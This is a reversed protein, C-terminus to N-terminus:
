HVEINFRGLADGWNTDRDFEFPMIEIVSSGPRMFFSNQNQAGHMGVFVDTAQAVQTGQPVDQIEVQTASPHPPMTDPLSNVIFPLHMTMQPKM